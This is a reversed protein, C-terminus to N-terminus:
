SAAEAYVARPALREAVLDALEKASQAPRKLSAPDADPLAQAHLATDMDGPDYPVFRVGQRSLENDWIAMMHALAAKSAGYSGWGAYPTVAADSSIAIVLGGAGRQASAEVSEVLTKSKGSVQKRLLQAAMLVPGLVNNLEHAMGGALTSVAEIRKNRLQAEARQAEALEAELRQVQANFQTHKEKCAQSCYSGLPGPVVCDKCIPRSCQKCRITGHVTPHNICASEAGKLM